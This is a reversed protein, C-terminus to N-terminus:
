SLFFFLLKTKEKGAFGSTNEAATDRWHSRDSGHFLWLPPEPFSFFQAFVLASSCIVM